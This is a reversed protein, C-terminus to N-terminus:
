GSTMKLYLNPPVSGASRDKAEEDFATGNARGGQGEDDLLVLQLDPIRWGKVMNLEGYARSLAMPVFEILNAGFLVVGDSGRM